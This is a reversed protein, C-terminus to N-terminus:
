PLIHLYNLTRYGSSRCVPILTLAQTKNDSVSILIIQQQQVLSIILYAMLQIIYYSFINFQLCDYILNAKMIIM